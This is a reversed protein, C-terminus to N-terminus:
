ADRRRWVRSLAVDLAGLIESYQGTVNASSEPNLFEAAWLGEQATSLAFAGDPTATPHHPIFTM